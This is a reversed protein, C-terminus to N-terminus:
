YTREIGFLEYAFGQSSIAFGAVKYHSALYNTRHAESDTWISHFRDANGGISMMAANEALAYNLGFLLAMDSPDGFLATTHAGGGSYYGNVTKEISKITALAHVDIDYVLARLGRAAREKNVLDLLLMEQNWNWKYYNGYLNNHIVKMDWDHADLVNTLLVIMEARTIAQSPRFTGDPYGSLLRNETLRKISGLATGDIQNKDEYPLDRRDGTVDDKMMNALFMAIYQRQAQESATHGYNVPIDNENGFLGAEQAILLATHYWTNTRRGDKFLRDSITGGEFRVPQLQMRAVISAFEAYTINANPRFTGDEYGSIYGASVFREIEKEAWHGDIDALVVDTSIRGVLPYASETPRPVTINSGYYPASPHNGMSIDGLVRGLSPDGLSSSARSASTYLVASANSVDMLMREAEAEQADCLSGGAAYVPVSWVMTFVIAGVLLKKM